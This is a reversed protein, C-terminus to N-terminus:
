GQRSQRELWAKVEAVARELAEGPTYFHPSFRVGGGRPACIVRQQMLHRHLAEADGRRPRFTVIGSQREPRDSTLIELEPLAELHERLWRQNAIARREVEAMGTELLLGLSANLASAALLNPSGCEFRRGDQAAQWAKTTYDGPNAVMHWGYQHLKLQERPPQRCYFLALGEPGLMWKHGDAAVFDAQWAQVDTKLAGISQIADVCFRIERERCFRGIRPIDAAFGDAYQVSSVSILRTRADCAALLDGEPDALPNLPIQRLEVGFEILSEWVIRNSPFECDFIVLNDGAQWPLGYAVLSLGESTSKLLSIDDVSPANILEAARRRLSNETKLWDPYDTAGRAANDAAFASVAEAACKPWPAVAAHNLYSLDPSLQFEENLARM